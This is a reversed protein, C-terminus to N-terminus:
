RRPSSRSGHRSAPCHPSSPATSPQRGSRIVNPLTIPPPKGAAANPPRASTIACAPAPPAPRGPRCARPSGSRWSRRGRGRQPQGVLADVGVEVRGRAVGDPGRGGIRKLPAPTGWTTWAAPVINETNKVSRSRDTVEGVGRAGPCRPTRRGEEVRHEVRADVERRRRVFRPEHGGGVVVAGHLGHEVCQGAGRRAAAAAWSAPRRPAASQALGRSSRGGAAARRPACGRPRATRGAARSGGRRGRCASPALADRVGDLSRSMMCRRTEGSSRAWRSRPVAPRQGPAEVDTVSSRTM